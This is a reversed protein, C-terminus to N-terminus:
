HKRVISRYAKSLDAKKLLLINVNEGRYIHLVLGVAGFIASVTGGFLPNSGVHVVSPDM